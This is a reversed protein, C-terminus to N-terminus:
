IKTNANQEWVHIYIDEDILEVGIDQIYLKLGWFSFFITTKNKLHDFSFFSINSSKLCNKLTM